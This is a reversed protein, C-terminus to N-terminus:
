ILSTDVTLVPGLVIVLWLSFKYRPRSAFTDSVLLPSDEPLLAILASKFWVSANNPLWVCSLLIIFVSKRSEVTGLVVDSPNVGAFLVLWPCLSMEFKVLESGPLENISPESGKFEGVTEETDLLETVLEESGKLESLTMEVPILECLPEDTCIMENAPECGGM